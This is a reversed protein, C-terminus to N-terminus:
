PRACGCAAGRSQRDASMVNPREDERLSVERTGLLDSPEQLVDIPDSLSALLRSGEHVHDILRLDKPDPWLDAATVVAVFERDEAGDTPPWTVSGESHRPVGAPRPPARRAQAMQAAATRGRPSPRSRPAGRLSAHGLTALEHGEEVHGGGDAMKLLAGGGWWG